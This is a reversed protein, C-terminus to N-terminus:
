ASAIRKSSGTRNKSCQRLETVSGHSTNIKSQAAMQELTTSVTTSVAMVEVHARNTVDSVVTFNAM